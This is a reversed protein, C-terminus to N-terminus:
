IGGLFTAVLYCSFLLFIHSWVNPKSKKLLITNKLLIVIAVIEKVAAFTATALFNGSMIRQLFEKVNGSSLRIAM